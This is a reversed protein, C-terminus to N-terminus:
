YHIFTCTAASQQLRCMYWHMFALWPHEGQDECSLFEDDVVAYRGILWQTGVAECQAGGTRYGLGFDYVTPRAVSASAAARLGGVVYQYVHVTVGTGAGHAFAACWCHVQVCAEM